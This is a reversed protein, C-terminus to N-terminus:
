LPKRMASEPYKGINRYVQVPRYGKPETGEMVLLYYYVAQGNVGIAYIKIAENGPVPEFEVSNVAAPYDGSPHLKLLLSKLSEVTFEPKREPNVIELSKAMDRELLFAALFRDAEKAAAHPDHKILRPVCNASLFAFM